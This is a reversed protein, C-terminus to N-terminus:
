ETTILLLKHEKQEDVQKLFQTYSVEESHNNAYKSYYYDVLSIGIILLFFCFITICITRLFPFSHEVKVKRMLLVEYRGLLGRKAM